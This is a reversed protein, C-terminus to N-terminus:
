EDDAELAEIFALVARDVKPRATPAFSFNVHSAIRSPDEGFNALVTATTPLPTVSRSGDNLGEPRFAVPSDYARM